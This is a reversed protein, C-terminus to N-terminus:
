EPLEDPDTTVAGPSRIVKSKVVPVVPFRVTYPCLLLQPAPGVDVKGIVTVAVGTAANVADATVTLEPVETFKVSLM